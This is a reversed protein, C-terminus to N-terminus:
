YIYKDKTGITNGDDKAYGYCLIIIKEITIRLAVYKSGLTSWEITNQYCSYWNIPAM